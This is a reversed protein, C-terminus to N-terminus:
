VPFGTNFLDIDSGLPSQSPENRILTQVEKILLSDMHPFFPLVKTHRNCVTLKIFCLPIFNMYKSFYCLLM